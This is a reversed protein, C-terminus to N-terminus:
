KVKSYVQGAISATNAPLGLLQSVTVFCLGKARLQDIILPVADETTGYIDHMLVIDGKKTASVVRDTVIGTDRDRWDDPDVSWLIIPLPSVQEVTSNYSGYPPRFVPANQGAANKIAAETKALEDKIAPGDLRTLQAHDWTHNGLEHGDTYIRKVIDPYAIVQNGIMFFTAVVGKEKLVDLKAPTWTKSPGDDFTLAVPNTCSDPIPTIKGSDSPTPTPVITPVPIPLVDDINSSKNAQNTAEDLHQKMLPSLLDEIQGYPIDVKRPADSLEGAPFYFTLSDHDFTFRQFKDALLVDDIKSKDTVEPDNMLSNEVLDTLRGMYDLDKDFLDALALEKGTNLDYTQTIIDIVPNSNDSFYENLNFKVSLLNPALGFTSFTLHMEDKWQALNARSDAEKVFEDIKKQAFNAIDASIKKNPTGPYQAVVLDLGWAQEITEITVDPFLDSNATIYDEPNYRTSTVPGLNASQRIWWFYGGAAVAIIIVVVIWIFAKTNM